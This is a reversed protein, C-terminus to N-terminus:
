VIIIFKPKQIFFSSTILKGDSQYYNHSQVKIGQGSLNGGVENRSHQSHQNLHLKLKQENLDGLPYENSYGICLINLIQWRIVGYSNVARSSNFVGIRPM